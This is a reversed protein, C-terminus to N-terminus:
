FNDCLKRVMADFESPNAGYRNHTIVIECLEHDKWRHINKSAIERAEIYTDSINPNYCHTWVGAATALYNKKELHFGFKTFPFGGESEKITCNKSYLKNNNIPKQISYLNLNNPESSDDLLVPLAGLIVLDKQDYKFIRWFIDSTVFGRIYPKYMVDVKELKDLNDAIISPYCYVYVPNEMNDQELLKSPQSSITVMKLKDTVYRLLEIFNFDGDLEDLTSYCEYSYGPLQGTIWKKHLDWLEDYSQAKTMAMMSEMNFSISNILM